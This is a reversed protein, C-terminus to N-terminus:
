AMAADTPQDAVPEGFIDRQMQDVRARLTGRLSWVPFRDAWEGAHQEMLQPTLFLVIPHELRSSYAARLLICRNIFGVGLSKAAQVFLRKPPAGVSSNRVPRLKYVLWIVIIAALAILLATGIGEIQGRDAFAGEKRMSARLAALSADTGATQALLMLGM